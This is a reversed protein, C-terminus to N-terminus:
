DFTVSVSRAVTRTVHSAVRWEKKGAAGLDVAGHAGSVASDVTSWRGGARRTQLDVTVGRVGTFRGASLSYARLRASVTAVDDASVSHALLKVRSARRVAFAATTDDDVRKTGAGDPNYYTITSPGVVYRGLGASACWKASTRASTAEADGPHAALYGVREGDHSVWANIGTVRWGRAAFRFTIPIDQCGGSAIRVDHVVIARISPPEDAATAASPTVTALAAAMTLVSATRRPTMGRVMALLRARRVGKRVFGDSRTVTADAPDSM